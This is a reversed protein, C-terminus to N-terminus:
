KSLIESFDDTDAAPSTVGTSGEGEITASGATAEAEFVKGLL